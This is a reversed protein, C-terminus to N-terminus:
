DKKHKDDPIIRKVDKFVIYVVSTYVVSAVILAIAVELFTM